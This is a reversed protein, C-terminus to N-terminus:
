SGPPGGGREGFPMHERCAEQAQAFKPDNPDLNRPLEIALQGKDGFKPDPVDLGHKRLCRALALTQEQMERREEESPEPPRVNELLRGCKEQARRFTADFPEGGSQPTIAFRGNEDPDPFNRVGNKRMCEAFALAAQRSDKASAGRGSGSDRARRDGDLRAVEDRESSEGGCAVGALALTLALAALAAVSAWGRLKM